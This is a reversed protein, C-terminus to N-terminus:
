SHPVVYIYSTLRWLTLKTRVTCWTEIHLYVLSICCKKLLTSDRQNISVIVRFNLLCWFILSGCADRPVGREYDQNLVAFTCVLTIRKKGLHQRLHTAHKDLRLKWLLRDNFGWWVACLKRIETIGQTTTTSWTNITAWTTLFYEVMVGQKM